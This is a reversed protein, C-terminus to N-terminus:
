RRITPWCTYRNRNEIDIYVERSLVKEKKENYVGYRVTKRGASVNGGVVL